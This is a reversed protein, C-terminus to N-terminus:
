LNYTQSYLSGSITNCQLVCVSDGTSNIYYMCTNDCTNPALGYSYSENCVPQCVSGQVYMDCHVCEISGPASYYHATCAM